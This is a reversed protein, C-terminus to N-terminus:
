MTRKGPPAPADESIRRKLSVIEKKLDAVNKQAEKDKSAMLKRLKANEEEMFRIREDKSLEEARAAAADARADRKLKSTSPRRRNAGSSTSPGPPSEGGLLEHHSSQRSNPDDGYDVEGAAAMDFSALSQIVADLCSPM